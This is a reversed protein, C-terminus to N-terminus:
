ENRIYELANDINHESIGSLYKDENEGIHYKKIWVM